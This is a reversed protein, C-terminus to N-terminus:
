TPEAAAQKALQHERWSIFLTSGVVIVAGVVTATRPVEQFLLFGVIVAFVLRTYDVPAMVAAEGAEMGKIYAGQTLTGIVGMAALLGLDPWTPWRWVFLAPPIAFVLGLVAAYVLLVFPTHDRTMVKMGTITLAFLFAAGLACLQPWGLWAEVGGAGPQLMILVGVFGVLAASIRRPGIPERLVLGALPVLWLTRTFSLANADALPLKQYAYFSMILALVGASSRFIVIGPRTTRFAGRWDRAILPLLVLVGALQRYFTQLAAPYDDGLFKILTTMVTFGVASALMWLAGRLNPSLTM